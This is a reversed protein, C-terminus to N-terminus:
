FFSEWFIPFVDARSFCELGRSFSEWAWDKLRFASLYPTQSYASAKSLNKLTNWISYSLRGYRMLFLLIDEHAFYSINGLLTV